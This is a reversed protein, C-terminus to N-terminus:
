RDYFERRTWRGGQVLSEDDYQSNFKIQYTRDDRMQEEILRALEEERGEINIHALSRQLRRWLIREIRDESRRSSRHVCRIRSQVGKKARYKATAIKAYVNKCTKCHTM